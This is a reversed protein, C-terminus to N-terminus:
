FYLHAEARGAFPRMLAGLREVAAPTNPGDFFDQAFLWLPVPDDPRLRLCDGLATLAEDVAQPQDPYATLLTRAIFNPIDADGPEVQAARRAVAIARDPEGLQSLLGARKVRKERISVSM